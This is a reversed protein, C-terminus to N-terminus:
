CRYAVVKWIGRGFAHSGARWDAGARVWRGDGAETWTWRQSCYGPGIYIGGVYPWGYSTSWHGAGLVEDYTPSSRYNLQIGVGTGNSGNLVAKATAAQAPAALGTVVATAAMAGTTVLAAMRSTRM